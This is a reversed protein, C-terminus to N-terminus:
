TLTPNPPETRLSIGYMLAFLSLFSCAVGFQYTAPKIGLPVQMRHPKDQTPALTTSRQVWDTQMIEVM